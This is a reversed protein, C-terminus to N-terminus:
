LHSTSNDKELASIRRPWPKVLASRSAALLLAVLLLTVLCFYTPIPAKHAIGSPITGFCLHIALFGPQCHQMCTDPAACPYQPILIYSTLDISGIAILVIDPVHPRSPLYPYGVKGCDPQFPFRTRILRMPTDLDIEVFHEFGQFSIGVGRIGRSMVPSCTPGQLCLVQNNSRPITM